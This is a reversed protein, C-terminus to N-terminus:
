TEKKCPRDATAGAHTAVLNPLDAYADHVYPRAFVGTGNTPDGLPTATDLARPPTCPSDTM